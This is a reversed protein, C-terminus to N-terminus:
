DFQREFVDEQMLEADERTLIKKVPPHCSSLVDLVAQLRRADCAAYSGCDERMSRASMHFMSACTEELLEKVNDANIGCGPLIDIEDHHLNILDQILSAGLPATEAQGSTLVRDCGCRILAEIAEYPDSAIDFARHFVATKEFSLILRCLTETNREDVTLDPNLFGFVIGDAGHELLMRADEFMVRIEAESYVFGATRPRVMCVIPVATNKKALVLTSISPTLGGLELASNLEIRDIPFRSATLVDGIGGACLEAQYNGFMDFVKRHLIM